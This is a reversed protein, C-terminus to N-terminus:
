FFVGQKLAITSQNGKVHNEKEVQYTNSCDFPSNM